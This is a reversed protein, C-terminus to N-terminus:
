VSAAVKKIRTSEAYRPDDIFPEKFLQTVEISLFDFEEVVKGVIRYVGKGRFPYKATVNPFHTTDIFGGDLDIFTGFNMEAGKSTATRKYTVFYGLIVIIKGIYNPLDTVKTHVTIENKLLHFPSLLPFGILELEDFADEYDSYHLPPITYNIPDTKFLEATPSSKKTHGLLM